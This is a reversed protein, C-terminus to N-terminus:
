FNIRDLGSIEIYLITNTSKTIKYGDATRYGVVWLINRDEAVLLIDNRRQRPIKEDIFFNKLKKRGPSHYPFFIDGPQRNRINIGELVKNYDFLQICGTEKPKEIKGFAKEYENRTYLCARVCIKGDLFEIDSPVSLNICVPNEAQETRQKSLILHNYEIYLKIGQPFELTKGTGEKSALALVSDVHKAEIGKRSGTVRSWAMRIIRGSIAANLGAFESRNLIVMDKEESIVVTNYKENALANLYDRDTKLLRSTRLLSSIVSFGTEQQIQPFLRNRLTNRVYSNDLNSSDTRYCLRNRKLYDEIEDKGTALLPRIINGRVEEMGCLGDLGSGRLLNIFITESQDLIHHAVAIYRANEEVLTQHLCEYRLIRGAEEISYGNKQSFIRVDKRYIKIPIGWETCLNEVFSEDQLSEGSRLMHNVHVAIISFQNELRMCNLIHLLCVSDAGGSVGAVITTEPQLVLNEKAWMNVKKMLSDKM